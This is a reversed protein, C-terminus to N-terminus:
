PTAKREEEIQACLEILTDRLWVASDDDLSVNALAQVRRCDPDFTKEPLVCEDAVCFAGTDDPDYDVRLRMGPDDKEHHYIRVFRM